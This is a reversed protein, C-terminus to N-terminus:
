PRDGLFAKLDELLRARTRHLIVGVSTQPIGLMEAIEKNGYGEFTSLLFIEADRPNLYAVARRLCTHIEASLLRHDPGSSPDQQLFPETEELSVSRSVRPSRIVDIAANVAARHLYSAATGGPDPLQKSRALRLFVTQLVDEADAPNGTVRYAARFVLDHYEQFLFELSAAPTPLAAKELTAQVRGEKQDAGVMLRGETLFM